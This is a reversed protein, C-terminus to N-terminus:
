RSTKVCRSNRTPSQHSFKMSTSTKILLSNFAFVNKWKRNCAKKYSVIPTVQPWTVSLVPHEYVKAGGERAPVTPWVPRDVKFWLFIHYHPALVSCVIDQQYEGTSFMANCCSTLKAMKKLILKAWDHSGSKDRSPPALTYSCGTFAQFCHGVQLDAPGTCRRLM